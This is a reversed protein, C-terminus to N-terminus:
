FPMVSLFFKTMSSMVEAADVRSNTRYEIRADAVATSPVQNGAVITDPNVVGSLRVFEVGKDLGVQKEGSVVLNGNPLVQSVTVTVAGTFTNSSSNSGKDEFKNSTASSSDGLNGPVLGFIKAISSGSSGTKSGTGSDDKTATTKEVINVILTDGVLRARRDEFMPRYTAVQFISGNAPPPPPLTAVPPAAPQRTISDPTAACGALIAFAMVGFAHRSSLLLRM